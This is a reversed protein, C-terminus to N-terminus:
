KWTQRKGGVERTSSNLTKGASNAPHIGSKLGCMRFRRQLANATGGAPVVAVELALSTKSIVKDSKSYACIRAMPFSHLRFAGNPTYVSSGM